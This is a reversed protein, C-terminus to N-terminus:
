VSVRKWQKVTRGFEDYGNLENALEEWLAENRLEKRAWQPHEEMFTVMVDFQEQTTHM